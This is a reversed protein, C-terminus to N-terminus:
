QSLNLCRARNIELDQEVGEPVMLQASKLSLDARRCFRATEKRLSTASPGTLVNLNDSIKAIQDDFRQSAFSVSVQDNSKLFNNVDEIKRGSFNLLVETQAVPDTIESLKKEEGVVQAVSQPSISELNTSVDTPNVIATTTQVPEQDVTPQRPQVVPNDSTIPQDVPSSTSDSPAPQDTPAPTPAPPPEPVPEATTPTPSEPPLASETAPAVTDEEGLVAPRNDKNNSISKQIPLSSYSLLVLSLFVQGGALVLLKIM